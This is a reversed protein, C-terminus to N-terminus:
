KENKEESLPLLMGWVPYVRNLMSTNELVQQLTVKEINDEFQQIDALSYGAGLWRLTIDAATAPNDYQYVMGALLRNKVKQLEKETLRDLTEKITEKFMKKIKLLNKSEQFYAYVAFMSNGRNLYDFATESSLALHEDTVMKKYFPSTVSESLYESLLILSYLSPSNGQYHPLIYSGILRLVKVDKRRSIIESENHLFEDDVEAINNKRDDIAGSNIKGYYKQALEKATEVDIDGSLILIANNPKYYKHYFELVDEKTISRIEKSTGSVPEGYLSGNWLYRHYKEWFKNTPSTNLRQQREQLVVEREKEFAKDSIKLGTMRDAELYMALELRDVSLFQHYYTYDHSTAANSIGGNAEILKEFQGDAFKHTGRFMLHELFHAIGGKGEPEDIRGVKYLVVQKVIPAKHNPIVIVQLGNDLFFEEANKLAASAKSAFSGCILFVLLSYLFKKPM